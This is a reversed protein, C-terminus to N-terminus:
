WWTQPNTALEGWVPGLRIGPQRSCHSGYLQKGWRLYFWSPILNCKVWRIFSAVSKLPLNSTKIIGQYKSYLDLPTPRHTKTHTNISLQPKCSFNPLDRYLTHEKQPWMELLQFAGHRRKSTLCRHKHQKKHSIHSIEPFYGDSACSSTNQYVLWYINQHTWSLLFVFLNM